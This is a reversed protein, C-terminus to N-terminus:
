VLFLYIIRKDNICSTVVEVMTSYSKFGDIIVKEVHM